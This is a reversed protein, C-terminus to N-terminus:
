ANHLTATQQKRFKVLATLPLNTDATRQWDVTRIKWPILKSSNYALGQQERQM